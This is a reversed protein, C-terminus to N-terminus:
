WEPPSKAASWLSRYIAFDTTDFVRGRFKGTTVLVALFECGQECFQFRHSPAGFSTRRADLKGLAEFQKQWHGM